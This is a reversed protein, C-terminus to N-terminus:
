GAPSKAPPAPPPEPDLMPLYAPRPPFEDPAPHADVVVLLLPGGPTDERWAYLLLCRPCVQAPWRAQELGHKMLRLHIGKRQTDVFLTSDPAQLKEACAPCCCQWAADAYAFPYGPPPTLDHLFREITARCHPCHYLRRANAERFERPPPWQRRGLLDRLRRADFVPLDDLRATPQGCCPCARMYRRARWLIFVALGLLPLTTALYPGLAFGAALVTGAASM